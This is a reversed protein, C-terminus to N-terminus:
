RWSGPDTGADGGLGGSQHGFDAFNGTRERNLLSDGASVLECEVGGVAM